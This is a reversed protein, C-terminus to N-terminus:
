PTLMVSVNLKKQRETTAVSHACLHLHRDKVFGAWHSGEEQGGGQIKM